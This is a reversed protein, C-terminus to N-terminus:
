IYAQLLDADSEDELARSDHLAAHEHRAADEAQAGPPGTNNGRVAKFLPGTGAKKIQFAYM